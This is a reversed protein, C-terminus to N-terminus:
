APEAVKAAASAGDTEEPLHEIGIHEAGCMIFAREIINELERVNGPWHHAMLMLYLTV